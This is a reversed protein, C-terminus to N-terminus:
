LEEVSRVGDLKSLETIVAVHPMKRALSIDVIAASIKKDTVDSGSRAIELDDIHYAGTKMYDIFKGLYEIDAFEIYLALYKSNHRLYKDFRNLSTIILLICLFGIIAGLYFGVGIALGMCASAWLGAATTLGRVQRRDTVIITGAGLFGIGSIVQAGLRAPDAAANINVIIYQNIMMVLASGLCVLMHTRLGAPRNRRGRELGIIGGCIVAFLMRTIISVTNLETMYDFFERM